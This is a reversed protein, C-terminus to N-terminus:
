GGMLRLIGFFEGRLEGSFRGLFSAVYPLVLGMGLLGLGVQLPLSVLFVNMQPVARGLITLATYFLLNLVLLPAALRFALGF